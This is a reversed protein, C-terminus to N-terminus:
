YRAAWILIATTQLKARPHGSSFKLYGVSIILAFTSSGVFFNLDNFTLKKFVMWSIKGALDYFKETKLWAAIGWLFWQIGFDIGCLYLLNGVSM